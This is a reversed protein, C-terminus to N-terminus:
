KTAVNKQMVPHVQLDRGYEYEGGDCPLDIKGNNILEDVKEYAMYENEASVYVTRKYTECIEVKYNAPESVECWSNECTDPEDVKGEQIMEKVLEEAQMEDEAEIEYTGSYTESYKVEYKKAM